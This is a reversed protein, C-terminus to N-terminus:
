KTVVVKKVRSDQVGQGRSGKERVFYVGPKPNVARRGMADFIDCSALCRIASAGSLITPGFKYSTAQPKHSEAVGLRDSYWVDGITLASETSDGGLVWVLNNYVLSAHFGRPRWDASSDACNWTAGDTSYWVDNLPLWSFGDVYGGTVCMKGDFVVAELGTRTTDM